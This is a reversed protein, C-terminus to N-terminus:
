YEEGEVFRLWQKEGGTNFGHNYQNWAKEMDWSGHEKKIHLSMEKHALSKKIARNYKDLQAEPVKGGVVDIALNEWNGDFTNATNYHQACVWIKKEGEPVALVNFQSNYPDDMGSHSKQSGPPHTHFSVLNDNGRVKSKFEDNPNVGKEERSEYNECKDLEEVAYDVERGDGGDVKEFKLAGFAELKDKYTEKYTFSLLEQLV